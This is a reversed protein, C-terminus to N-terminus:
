SVRPEGSRSGSRHDALITNPIPNGGFCPCYGSTGYGSNRRENSIHVSRFRRESGGEMGLDLDKTARVREAFRLEMAVGGKIYYRALNGEHIATDLAGCLALFSVWRRLREQDIGQQRAVRALRKEWREPPKPKTM